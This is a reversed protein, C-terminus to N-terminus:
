GYICRSSFFCCLILTDLGLVCLQREQIPNVLVCKIAPLGSSDKGERFRWGRSLKEGTWWRRLPFFHPSPVLRTGPGPSSSPGSSGSTLAGISLGGRRGNFLYLKSNIFRNWEWKLIKRGLEVFMRKNVIVLTAGQLPKSLWSISPTQFSSRNIIGWM